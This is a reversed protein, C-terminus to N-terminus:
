EQINKKSKSNLGNKHIKELRAPNVIFTGFNRWRINKFTEIQGKVGEAMVKRTYMNQSEWIAKAIDFPIKEEEAIERIIRELRKQM